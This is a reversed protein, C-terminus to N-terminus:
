RTAVMLASRGRPAARAHPTLGIRERRERWGGPSHGTLNKFARSFAAESEYGVDVAVRAVKAGRALLGAALQMRWQALYQMPPKGVLATFRDALVSRSVSAERALAEVSWARAPQRHLAALARGVAEDRVGALWGSEEPPLTELHRRVTEVFMLESLRALVSQAGPRRERSEALALHVFHNLWGRTAGARDRIHLVRPLTAILPNFPRVDCGLFGCIVHVLEGKEAGFNVALPITLDRVRDYGALDPKAECTPESGLIHADGQPFVIVDGAELLLPAAGKCRVWCRGEAIVHYSIVHEVGPMLRPGVYSGAAAAQAWPARARVDFFVAGSLRVGQLVDSLTDSSM